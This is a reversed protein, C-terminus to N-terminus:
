LNCTGSEAKSEAKQEVKMNEQGEEIQKAEPTVDILNDDEWVIQIDHHAEVEVKDRWKAPQRNKLWFIMSTPDPPYHKVTDARIVEGQNVFIKEEPHSYGRARDYLSREINSDRFSKGERISELFEPHGVKWNNVTSEDVDFVEALDKDTFGHKECLKRAKDAYESKYLTPRGNPM